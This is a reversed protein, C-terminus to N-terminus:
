KEKEDTLKTQLIKITVEVEEKVGFKPLKDLQMTIKEGTDTNKLSMLFWDEKEKEGKADTFESQKHTIKKVKFNM